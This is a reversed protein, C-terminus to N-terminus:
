EIVQTVRSLFSDPITLGIMKATRLNIALVFKTPQQVPLEAANEGKLIRDIYSASRRFLDLLDASYSMLGGAEVSEVDGFMGPLRHKIALQAMSARQSNFFPSALCLFSGVREGTMSLFAEGFDEPKRLPIAVLQVGLKEGAAMVAKLALPHSPTMPSWVVGIRQVQPMMEKLIELEKASLETFLMSLGTINGGPRALSAVHGLGIPDAHLAFVIPITHTANRAAEVMTSSQAFIVNVNMRALDDALERLQDVTAAWRFEIAISQGRLTAM